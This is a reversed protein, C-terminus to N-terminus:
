APTPLVAYATDVWKRDAFKRFGCAKIMRNFLSRKPVVAGRVYKNYVIIQTPDQRQLFQRFNKDICNDLLANNIANALALHKDKEQMEPRNVRLWAEGKRKLLDPLDTDRTRFASETRLKWLLDEDKAHDNQIRLNNRVVTDHLMSQVHKQRGVQARIRSVDPMVEDSIGRIILCKCYRKRAEEVRQWNNNRISELIGDSPQEIDISCDGITEL